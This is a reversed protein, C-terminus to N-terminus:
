NGPRKRGPTKVAKPLLSRKPPKGCSPCTVKANHEEMQHLFTSFAQGCHKCLLDIKDDANAKNSKEGRTRPM